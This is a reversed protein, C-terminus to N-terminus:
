TKPTTDINGLLNIETQESPKPGADPELISPTAGLELAKEAEKEEEMMLFLAKLRHEM